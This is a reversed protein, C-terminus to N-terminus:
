EFDELGMLELDNLECNHFHRPTASNPRMAKGSSSSRHSLIKQILEERELKDREELQVNEDM